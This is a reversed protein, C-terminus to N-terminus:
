LYFNHAQTIKQILKALDLENEVESVEKETIKIAENLRKSKCKCKYLKM